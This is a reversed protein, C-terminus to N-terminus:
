VSRPKKAGDAKVAKQKGKPVERLNLKQQRPDEITLSGQHNLWHVSKPTAKPPEKTKIAYRTEVQDRADVMIYLELALKGKATTHNQAHRHLRSLLKYLEETVDQECDELQRMFSSFSRMPVDPLPENDEPSTVEGTEEDVIEDEDKPGAMM